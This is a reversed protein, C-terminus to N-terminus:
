PKTCAAIMADVAAAVSPVPVFFENGAYNTCTVVHDFVLDRLGEFSTLMTKRSLNGPRWGGERRYVFDATFLIRRGAVEVLTSFQGSTHGPTPILQLDGEILTREFALAHDIRVQNARHGMAAAEIASCYVRAGFREAIQNTSPGGLHRDSIVVASVGGKAEFADFSDSLSTNRMADLVLNGAPRKVFHSYGFGKMGNQPVAFVGPLIERLAPEV